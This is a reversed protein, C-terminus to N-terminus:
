KQRRPQLFSSIEEKRGHKGGEGGLEGLSLADIEAAKYDAGKIQRFCIHRQLDKSCILLLGEMHTCQILLM